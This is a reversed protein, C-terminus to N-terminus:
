KLYGGRRALEQLFLFVEAEIDETRIKQFVREMSAEHGRSKYYDPLDPDEPLVRYALEFPNLNEFSGSIVINDDVLLDFGGEDLRMEEAYEIEPSDGLVSLNKM